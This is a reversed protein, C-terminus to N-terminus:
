RLRAAIVELNQQYARERAKGEVYSPHKLHFVEIENQGTETLSGVFAPSNSLMETPELGEVRLPRHNKLVGQARKASEGGLTLVVQPNVTAIEERLHRLCVRVLQSYNLHHEDYGVNCKVTNTIFASFPDIGARCLLIRLKAGTKKNTLPILTYRSGKWLPETKDGGASDKGIIMLRAHKPGSGWVIETAVFGLSAQQCLTCNACLAMSHELMPFLDNHLEYEEDRM